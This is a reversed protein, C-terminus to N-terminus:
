RVAPPSLPIRFLKFRGMKSVWREAAEPSELALVAAPVEGSIVREIALTGESMQVEAAGAAVIATRVSAASASHWEDIAVNKNALDAVSKIEPRVLLIAVLHATNNPPAPATKEADGRLVTQFHDANNANEEPADATVQEQSRIDSNAASSDHPPSSAMNAGTTASSAAGNDAPQSPVLPEVKTAIMAPKAAKTVFHDRDRAYPPSPKDTKAAITSRVKITESNAKFSAPQPEIPQGAAMRDFCAFRNAQTCAEISAQQQYPCSSCAVQTAFLAGM